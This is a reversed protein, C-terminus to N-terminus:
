WKPQHKFPYIAECRQIVFSRCHWQCTVEMFDRNSSSGPQTRWLVKWCPPCPQGTTVKQLHWTSPQNRHDKSWCWSRRWGPSVHMHSVQAPKIWPRKPAAQPFWRGEAVSLKKKRGKIKTNQDELLNQEVTVPPKDQRLMLWAMTQMGKYCLSQDKGWAM